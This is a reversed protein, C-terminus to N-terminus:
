HRHHCHRSVVEEIEEEEKTAGGTAAASEDSERASDEAGRALFNNMATDADWLAEAMYMVAEHADFGVARMDSGVRDFLAATLRVSVDEDTEEADRPVSALASAAADLADQM